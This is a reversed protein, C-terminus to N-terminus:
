RLIWSSRRAWGSSGRTTRTSPDAGYSRGPTTMAQQGSGIQLKTPDREIWYDLLELERGTIRMNEFEATM